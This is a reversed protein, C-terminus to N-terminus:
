RMIQKISMKGSDLYMGTINANAAIDAFFVDGARLPVDEVGNELTVLDSLLVGDPTKNIKFKVRSVAGEPLKYMMSPYFTINIDIGYDYAFSCINNLPLTFVSAIFSSARTISKSNMVIESGIYPAEYVSSPVERLVATYQDANSPYAATAVSIPTAIYKSEFGCRYGIHMGYVLDYQMVICALERKTIERDANLKKASYLSVGHDYANSMYKGYNTDASATIEPYNKGSKAINPRIYSYKDAALSFMAIVEGITANSKAESETSKFKGDPLANSCMIGWADAYDGDYGKTYEYGGYPVARGKYCFYLAAQAAEGRSIPADASFETNFIDSGTYVAKYAADDFNSVFDRQNGANLTKARVILTAAEARTLTDGLRLNINDDGMMLGTNYVWAVATANSGQSTIAYPALADAGGSYRTYLLNAVDARTIPTDPCFNNGDLANLGSYMIYEYAWHNAAVDDFEGSHRTPSKGLMKVFEARTVTGNPRFTGDSYGNIIGEGSLTGISLYAWHESPVDSFDASVTMTAATTILLTLAVIISILKKM